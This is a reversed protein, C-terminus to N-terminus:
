AATPTSTSPSLRSPLWGYRSSHSLENVPEGNAAKHRLFEVSVSQVHGENVLAGMILVGSM